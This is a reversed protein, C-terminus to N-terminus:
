LTGFMKVKINETYGDAEKKAISKNARALTAM